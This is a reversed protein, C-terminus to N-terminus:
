LDRELQEIEYVREVLDLLDADEDSLIDEKWVLGPTRKWGRGGLKGRLYATRSKLARRAEVEKGHKATWLIFAKDGVMRIDHFRIGLKDFLKSIPQDKDIAALLKRMVSSAVKRQRVSTPDLLENHAALQPDIDTRRRPRAGRRRRERREGSDLDELDEIISDWRGGSFCAVRMRGLSAAERGMIARPGAAAPGAATMAAERGRGMMARPGAAAPALGGPMRERREGSDLDNVRGGSFCAVRMGGLSAAERDGMASGAAAAPALGAAMRGRERREGPDEIISDWRGGSFCAVRMRGLSMASLSSWIRSAAERGRGIM